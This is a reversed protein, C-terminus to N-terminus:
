FKNFLQKYGDRIFARMHSCRSGMNYAQKYTRISEELTAILEAMYLADYRMSEFDQLAEEVKRCAIKLKISQQVQGELRVIKRYLEHQNM